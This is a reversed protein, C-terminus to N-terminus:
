ISKLLLNILIREKILDIYKNIPELVFPEYKLVTWQNDLQLFKHLETPLYKKLTNIDDSYKSLVFALYNSILGEEKDVEQMEKIHKLFEPKLERPIIIPPRVKTTQKFDFLKWSIREKGVMIILPKDPSLRKLAIQKLITRDLDRQLNERTPAYLYNIILSKVQYLSAMTKRLYYPKLKLKKIGLKM